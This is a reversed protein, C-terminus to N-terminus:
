AVDVRDDLYAAAFALAQRLDEEQLDPYEALLEGRVPYTAM